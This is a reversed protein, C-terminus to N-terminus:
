TVEIRVEVKGEFPVRIYSMTPGYGHHFKTGATNFRRPTVCETTQHEESPLM